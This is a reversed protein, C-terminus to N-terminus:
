SNGFFWCCGFLNVLLRISLKLKSYHYQSFIANQLYSNVNYNGRKTIPVVRYMKM